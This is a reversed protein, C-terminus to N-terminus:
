AFRRRDGRLWHPRSPVQGGVCDPHQDPVEGRSHLDVRVAGERPAIAEQVRKYCQVVTDGQTVLGPLVPVTV